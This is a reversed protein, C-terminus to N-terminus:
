VMERVTRSLMGPSITGPPNYRTYSNHDRGPPIDPVAGANSAELWEHTLGQNSRQIGDRIEPAVSAGVLAVGGATAAIPGKHKWLQKGVFRGVPGAEKTLQEAARSCRLLM